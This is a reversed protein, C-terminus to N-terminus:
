VHNMERKWNKYRVIQGIQVDTVCFLKGLHVKTFKGSEFLARILNVQNPTLKARGNKEGTIDGKRGKAKRDRANDGPTGLFLHDPNVCGPNDCTHLVCFGSQIVKGRDIMWAARHAKVKKQHNNLVGYGCYDKGGQWEWCGPTKKVNKWFRQIFDQDFM